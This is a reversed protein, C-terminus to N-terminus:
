TKLTFLMVMLPVLAASKVWVLVQGTPLVSPALLVQVMVTFNVGPALPMLVAVTVSDSLEDLPEWVIVSVPLPFYCSDGVNM